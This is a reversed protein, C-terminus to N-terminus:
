QKDMKKLKALLYMQQLIDRRTLVTNSKNELKEYEDKLKNISRDYFNELVRGRKMM